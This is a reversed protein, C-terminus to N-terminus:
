EKSFNNIHIKLMVFLFLKLHLITIQGKQNSKRNVVTNVM